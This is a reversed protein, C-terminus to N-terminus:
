VKKAVIFVSKGKGPQWQYDITFGADTIARELEKVTFVQVFPIVGFFHGIPGVLKFFKMTDGLCSTTSIFVGGPKLLKFVKQIAAEKDELLHLISMGMVIDVSEDPLNLAEITVNELTINQINAKDIKDQAIALMNASIDTAHIHEVYPAHLIATSGTGCGFELINMEPQFYERSVQLKKEYAVQDAIPSKAYRKAIRDWFKSSPPM